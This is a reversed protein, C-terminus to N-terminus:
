HEPITKFIHFENLRFFQQPLRSRDYIRTQWRAGDHFSLALLRALPPAFTQGPPLQRLAKQFSALRAPPITSTSTGQSRKMPTLSYISCIRNGSRGISCGKATETTQDDFWDAVFIANAANRLHRDRVWDLTASKQYRGLIYASTQQRRHNALLLAAILLAGFVGFFVFRKM